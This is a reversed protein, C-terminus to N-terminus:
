EASQAVPSMAAPEVLPDPFDDRDQEINLLSPVFFCGVAAALTIFGGMLFLTRVGVVEALPGAFALGIPMMAGSASGILTFVRGQMSPAVTAQFIAMIPGNTLSSMM